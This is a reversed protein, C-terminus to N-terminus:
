HLAVEASTSLHRTVGFNTPLRLAGALLNENGASSGQESEGSKPTQRGAQRGAQISIQSM